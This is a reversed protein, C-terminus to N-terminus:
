KYSFNHGRGIKSIQLSSRCNVTSNWSVISNKTNNISSLFYGLDHLVCNVTQFWFETIQNQSSKIRWCLKLSLPVLDRWQERPNNYDDMRLSILLGCFYEKYFLVRFWVFVIFHWHIHTHMYKHVCQTETHTCMHVQLERDKQYSEFKLEFLTNCLWQFIIHKPM